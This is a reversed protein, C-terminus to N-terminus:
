SKKRPALLSNNENKKSKKETSVNKPNCAKRQADSFRLQLIAINNHGLYLNLPQKSDMRQDLLVMKPYAASQGGRAKAGYKVATHGAFSESSSAPHASAKAVTEIMKMDGWAFFKRSPLGEKGDEIRVVSMGESAYLQKIKQKPQFKVHPVRHPKRYCQTSHIKLQDIQGQMNNGFGYVRGHVTLVISHYQGCAIMKVQNKDKPAGDCHGSVMHSTALCSSKTSGGRSPPREPVSNTLVVQRAETLPNRMQDLLFDIFPTRTEEEEFDDMNLQVTRFDSMNMMSTKDMISMSRNILGRRISSQNRFSRFLASANAQSQDPTHFSEFDQEFGDYNLQESGASYFESFGSKDQSLIKSHDDNDLFGILKKAPDPFCSNLQSGRYPM